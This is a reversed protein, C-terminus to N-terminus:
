PRLERLIEPSVARLLYATLLYTIAGIPLALLLSSHVLSMAGAMVSGAVVAKPVVWLQFRHGLVQQCKVLYIGCIVVECVLTTAAAGTIGFQPIAVLNIVLNLVLGFAGVKLAYLQLGRAILITTLMITLFTFSLSFLSVRLAGAGSVFQQGGVIRMLDPAVALGGFAFGLGALVLADFAKQITAFVRAGGVQLRAVLVPFVSNVFFGPMTLLMDLLKYVAGYIGVEVSSRLFSLMFIDLRFYLQSVILAAGLPLSEKLLMKWLVTDFLPRPKFYPRVLVNTVLFTVMTGISATAVVAYFGLGTTAVYLTLGFSVFRGIIDAIVAKDMRLKSQFVTLLSANLLGFFHAPAALAIGIRVDPTFPLVFSLAAAAGLTGLALIARLSLTNGVLEATREPAKSIERVTITFLGLDAVLAFIQLYVLLLTFKGYDAPGLYRTLIAISIAGVAIVVVKGLVQIATNYAVRKTDSGSM